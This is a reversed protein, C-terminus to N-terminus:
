AKRTARSAAVADRGLLVVVSDVHKSAVAKCDFHAALRHAVAARAPAYLVLSHQRVQDADGISIKRWGRDALMTRSRAALSQSRAANLLAITIPPSAPKLPVWQLAAPRIVPGIAANSAQLTKSPAIPMTVLLVEGKSARALYPGSSAELARDPQATAESPTPQPAKPQDSPQRDALIVRPEFIAAPLMVAQIPKPVPLKTPAPQIRAQATSATEATAAAAAPPLKVTVSAVRPVAISTVEVKSPAPVNMAAVEARIQGAQERQGLHDLSAALAYLLNRDTPAYALAFEYNTRALDFRGMAAYCAAIGAFADASEPQERLLARFSELALGPNGFALQARAQGLLGGSYRYKSQADAIPRVKVNETELCGSVALSAGLMLLIRGRMM